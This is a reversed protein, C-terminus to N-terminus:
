VCYLFGCEQHFSLFLFGREQYLNCPSHPKKYQIEPHLIAEDLLTQMAYIEAATHQIMIDM